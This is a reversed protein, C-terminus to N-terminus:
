VGLEVYDHVRLIESRNIKKNNNNILIGQEGTYINVNFNNNNSLVTQQM